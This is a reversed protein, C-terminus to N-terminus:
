CGTKIAVIAFWVYNVCWGVVGTFWVLHIWRLRVGVFAILFFMGYYVIPMIIGNLNLWWNEGLNQPIYCLGCFAYVPYMVAALILVWIHRHSRPEQLSDGM